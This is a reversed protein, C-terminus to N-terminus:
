REETGEFIELKFHFGEYTMLMRGFENWSLEKGDIVLCPVEGDTDDDWTIHGRVIDENTIRYRTLDNSEIHRREMARRMREVLKTFLSFLDEEADGYVSFEYGKPSSNRIELAQIHVKDGFLRTQFHFTHNEDDKDVLVIPDFSFHDFDLGIAESISENYCRSCLFRSTDGNSLYVGDYTSVETGCADCQKQTSNSNM